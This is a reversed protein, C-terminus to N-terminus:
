RQIGSACHTNFFARFRTGDNGAPTNPDAAAAAADMQQHTFMANSGAGHVMEHVLRFISERMADLRRTQIAAPSANRGLITPHLLSYNPAFAHVFMYAGGEGMIRAGSRNSAKGIAQTLGGGGPVPPVYQNAYYPRIEAMFAEDNSNVRIGGELQSDLNNFLGMMDTARVPNSFGLTPDSKLHSLLKSLMRGCEGLGLMKKLADKASDKSDFLVRVGTGESVFKFYSSFNAGNSSIGQIASYLQVSKESIFNPSAEASGLREGPFGGFWQYVNDGSLGTGPTYTVNTPLWGSSRWTLWKCRM